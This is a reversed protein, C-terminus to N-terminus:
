VQNKDREEKRRGGLVEEKEAWKRRLIEPTDISAVVKRKGREGAPLL